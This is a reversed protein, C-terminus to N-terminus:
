RHSRSWMCLRHRGSTRGDIQIAEDERNTRKPQRKDARAEGENAPGAENVQAAWGGLSRM